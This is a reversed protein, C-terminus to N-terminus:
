LREREVTDKDISGAESHCKFQSLNYRAKFSTLWSDSLNLHNDPSIGVLDAFSTWKQWLVDGTLQIKNSM